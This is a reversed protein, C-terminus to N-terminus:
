RVEQSEVIIEDLVYDCLSDFFHKEIRPGYGMGTEQKLIQELFSGHEGQWYKDITPRSRNFKDRFADFIIEACQEHPEQGYETYANEEWSYEADGEENFEVEYGNYELYPKQTAEDYEFFSYAHFTIWNDFGILSLDEDSLKLTPYNEELFLGFSKIFRDFNRQRLADGTWYFLGVTVFDKIAPALKIKIEEKM